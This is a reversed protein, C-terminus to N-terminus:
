QWSAGSPGHNERLKLFQHRHKQKPILCFVLSFFCSFLLNMEMSNHKVEWPKLQWPSCQSGAPQLPICIELLLLLTSKKKQRLIWYSSYKKQLLRLKTYM